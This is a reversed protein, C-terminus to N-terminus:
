CRTVNQGAGLSIPTNSCSMKTTTHKVYKRLLSTSTYIHTHSNFSSVEAHQSHDLGQLQLAAELVVGLEVNHWIQGTKTEYFKRHDSSKFDEGVVTSYIYWKDDCQIGQTVGKKATRTVVLEQTSRPPM